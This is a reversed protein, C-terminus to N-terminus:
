FPLSHASKFDLPRPDMFILSIPFRSPNSPRSCHQAKPGTSSCNPGQCSRAAWRPDQGEPETPSCSQRRSWCATLHM